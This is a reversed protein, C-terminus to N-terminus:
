YINGLSTLKESPCGKYVHSPYLSYQKTREPKAHMTQAPKERRKELVELAYVM